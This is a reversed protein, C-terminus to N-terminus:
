NGQISIRCRCPYLIYTYFVSCMESHEIRQGGRGQRKETGANLQIVVLGDMVVSVLQPGHCPTATGGPREGGEGHEVGPGSLPHRGQLSGEVRVAGM